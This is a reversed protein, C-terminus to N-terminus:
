ESKLLLASKLGHLEVDRLKLRLGAQSPGNSVDIEKVLM